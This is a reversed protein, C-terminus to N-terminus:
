ADPLILQVTLGADTINRAGGSNQWAAARLTEGAPLHEVGSSHLTQDGLGFSELVQRQTPDLRDGATNLAACLMTFSGSAGTPDLTAFIDLRYLGAVPVTIIGGVADIWGSQGHSEGYNAAATWASSVASVTGGAMMAVAALQGDVAEALAEVDAPVNPVDSLSPFPFGFAPSTM